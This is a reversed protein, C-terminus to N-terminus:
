LWKFKTMKPLKQMTPYAIQTILMEWLKWHIRKLAQMCAISMNFIHMHTEKSSAKIRASNRGKSSLSKLCINANYPLYKTHDVGGWNEAATKWNNYVQQPCSSFTFKTKKIFLIIKLSNQGKLSLWKPSCKQVLPILNTYHKWHIWQLHHKHKFPIKPM